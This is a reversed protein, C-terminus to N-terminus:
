FLKRLPIPRGPIWNLTPNGPLAFRLEASEGSEFDLGFIGVPALEAGPAPSFDCDPNPSQATCGFPQGNPQHVRGVLRTPTDWRGAVLRHWRTEGSTPQQHCGVGEL